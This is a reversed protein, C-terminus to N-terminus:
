TGAVGVGEDEGVDVGAVDAILDALAHAAEVGVAGDQLAQVGGDIVEAAAAVGLLDVGHGDDGGAQAVVSGKRCLQSSARFPTRTKQPLETQM